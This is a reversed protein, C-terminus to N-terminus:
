RFTDEDQGYGAGCHSDPRFLRGLRRLSYHRVLRSGQSLNETIKRLQLAVELSFNLVPVARRGLDHLGVSLIVGGGWNASDMLWLSGFGEPNLEWVYM